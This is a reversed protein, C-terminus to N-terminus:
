LKSTELYRLLVAEAESKLSNMTTRNLWGRKAMKAYLIPDGARKAAYWLSTDQSPVPLGFAGCHVNFCFAMARVWETQQFCVWSALRTMFMKPGKRHDRAGILEGIGLRPTSFVKDGWSELAECWADLDDNLPGGGKARTYGWASGIMVNHGVDKNAEFWTPDPWLPKSDHAIADTDIKVFWRTKVHTAPVYVHGTVMKQRQTEYTGGTWPVFLIRDDKVRLHRYLYEIERSTVGYQETDDFFIIWPMNFLEPRNAKWTPYTVLFQQFTKKDIGVVVTCVDTM